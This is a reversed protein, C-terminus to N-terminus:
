RFGKKGKCLLYHADHHWKLTGFPHESLCMRMKIKVTDSRIRIQVKKKPKDCRDLIHNNRNIALGPPIQQLPFTSNGYMRVPVVTTEPGFSAEKRTRSATCKNTCQHCAEKSAYIMNVGKNKLKHLEFGMPCIVTDADQRVFCSIQSQEQVEVTLGSGEYCVPLVGAALCKQIDEPKSSQREVESIETEQYDLTHIREEKDYKLAVHPVIGNQFCKEVDVRVSVM